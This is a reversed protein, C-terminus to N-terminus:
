CRHSISSPISVRCASSLHIRNQSSILFLHSHFRDKRVMTPVLSTPKLINEVAVGTIPLAMKYIFTRADLIRQRLYVRIDNVRSKLDSKTALRDLLSKPVTCRPCPCLGQDRITALLVRNFQILEHYILCGRDNSESRQTIPLTHLSGPICM